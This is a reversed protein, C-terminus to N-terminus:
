KLKKRILIASQPIRPFPYKSYGLIDELTFKRPFFIVKQTTENKKM